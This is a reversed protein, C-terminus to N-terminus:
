MWGIRGCLLSKIVSSCAISGAGRPPAINKPVGARRWMENWLHVFTSNVTRADVEDRAEPLRFKEFEDPGVAYTSQRPAIPLDPAFIPQLETLLKPGTVGLARQGAGSRNAPARGEDASASGPLVDGIREIGSGVAARSLRQRRAADCRDAHRGYRNVLRGANRATRVPFSQRPALPETRRVRQPLFCGAPRTDSACKRWTVGPPLGTVPAESFLEVGIGAAAFSALCLTEYPSFDGHWFSRAVRDATPGASQSSTASM